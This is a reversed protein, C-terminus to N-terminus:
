CSRKLILLTVDDEQVWEPGTFTQLEHLLSRILGDPQSHEQMIRKLRPSGFMEQQGNHAEVLGDTYFLVYDDGELVVEQELYNEDPMLGLPMGRARLDLVEGNRFLYAINHGANAYCLRGSNTDLIAYFCTAFTGSPIRTQLLKNVLALVRGPSDAGPAAARLMACATAMILASPVGKGNADGIVIGMRGDPLQLFDYLDGGVELAPRYFSQIQWGPFSPVEEPLLSQQIYHASQMEQEIRAREERRASQEVLAQRQAFGELLQEAMLNFQQELQGVEDARSVPVRQSIDGEKFRATARALREIRKILGRTTLVGFVLGIPLTLCLWIVSSPLVITGVNLLLNTDTAGGTPAHIYIAGIPQQNEGRVTYAVAAYNGEPTERVVGDSRGALAARILEMEALRDPSGQSAVPYEDPHSSAVVRGDQNVLIAFPAQRPARAGPEIYPIHLNLWSIEPRNEEYSYRLTTNQDPEFTVKSNLAGHDAHLAAQLAYVQATQWARQMAFYAPFPTRTAVYFLMALVLTEILLVIIVTVAVFSFAMRIRLRSWLQIGGKQHQGPLQVVNRRSEETAQM